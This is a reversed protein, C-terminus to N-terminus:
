KWRRVASEAVENMPEAVLGNTSLSIRYFAGDEMPLYTASGYVADMLPFYSGNKQLWGWFDVWYHSSDLQHVSRQKRHEDELSYYRGSLRDLRYGPKAGAMRFPGGWSIIRADIQWQDGYIKYTEEGDKDLLTLTATYEQEADQTFSITGLPKHSMLQKYSYLDLGILVLLIAFAVLGLAFTGRLWALLWGGRGFMRLGFYIAIIALLITISAFASYLM